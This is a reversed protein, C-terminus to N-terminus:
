NLWPHLTEPNTVSTTMASAIREPRVVGRRIPVRVAPQILGVVYQRVQQQISSVNRSIPRATVTMTLTATARSHEFGV